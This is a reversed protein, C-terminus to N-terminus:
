NHLEPNTAQAGGLPVYMYGCSAVVQEFLGESELYRVVVCGVQVLDVPMGDYSVLAREAVAEGEGEYHGAVLIHAFSRLEITHPQANPCEPDGCECGHLQEVRINNRHMRGERPSTCAGGEGQAYQETHSDPAAHTTGALSAFALEVSRAVDNAVDVPAALYLASLARRAELVQPTAPVAPDYGQWRDAQPFPSGEDEPTSGVPGLAGWDTLKGERWTSPYASNIASICAPPQGARVDCDGADLHAATAATAWDFAEALQEDNWGGVQEALWEHLRANEPATWGGGLLLLAMTVATERGARPQQNFGSDVSATSETAAENHM